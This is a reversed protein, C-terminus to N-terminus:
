ASRIVSRRSPLALRRPPGTRIARRHRAEASARGVRASARCGEAATPPSRRPPNGIIRISPPSASRVVHVAAVMSSPRGGPELRQCRRPRLGCKGLALRAPLGRVHQPTARRRAPRSAFAPSRRGCSRHRLRGFRRQRRGPLGRWRGAECDRWRQQRVVFGAVPARWASPAGKSPSKEVESSPGLLM